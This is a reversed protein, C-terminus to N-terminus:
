IWTRMVNCASARNSQTGALPRPATGWAQCAYYLNKTCPSDPGENNAAYIMYYTGKRKFLWAAEFLGNLSRVTVLTDPKPNIMDSSLEYGKLQGFTGFYLYSKGDDDTYVTPDINQIKNGPPPTTQSIIPGQPHIDRFPGVPTDSVAVGIAFKDKASTKAQFVPAYLYYKGNRPMIQSAFARGPAAWSFLGNPTAIRPHHVWQKGTPNKTSFMQWENMVFDRHNKPAEDRGALIYFTDNVVFPAPDASYYSGDGLIPNGPTTFPQIPPAASIVVGLFLSYALYVTMMATSNNLIGSDQDPLHDNKRALSQQRNDFPRPSRLVRLKRFSFFLEAASQGVDRESKILKFCKRTRFSSISDGFSPIRCFGFPLIFQCGVNHYEVVKSTNYTHILQLQDFFKRGAKSCETSNSSNIPPQM